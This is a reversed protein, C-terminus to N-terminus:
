LMYNIIVLHSMFTYIIGPMLLLCHLSISIILNINGYTIFVKCINSMIFYDIIQHRITLWIMVKISFKDDMMKLSTFNTHLQNNVKAIM